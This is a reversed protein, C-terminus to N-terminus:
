AILYIPWDENQTVISLTIIIFTTGTMRCRSYGISSAEQFLLGIQFGGSHTKVSAQKVQEYYRVTIIDSWMHQVAEFTVIKHMSNSNSSGSNNNKRKKSQKIRIFTNMIIMICLPGFVYLWPVETSYHLHLEFTLKELNVHWVRVAKRLNINLNM